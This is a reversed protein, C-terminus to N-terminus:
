CSKLYYTLELHIILKPFIPKTSFQLEHFTGNEMQVYLFVHLKMFGCIQIRTEVYEYMM